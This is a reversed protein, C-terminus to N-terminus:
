FFRVQDQGVLNPFWNGEIHYTLTGKKNNVDYTGCYAILGEFAAKIENPTGKSADNVAFTPRDRRMTFASFNRDTDFMLLGYPDTGLPHIITGRSSRAEFAVFTWTGILKKSQEEKNSDKSM